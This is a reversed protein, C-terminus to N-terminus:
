RTYYIFYSLRSDSIENRYALERAGKIKSYEYEYNM